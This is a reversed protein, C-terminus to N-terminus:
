RASPHLAQGIHRFFSLHRAGEPELHRYVTIKVRDLLVMWALAYVWILIAQPWTIPTVLGLGYVALLTAALKTVITSWLLVPAPYPRAYFPGRTRAVFLTLHGAVAM